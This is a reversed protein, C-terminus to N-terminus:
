CRKLGTCQYFVYTGMTTITNPIIIESLKKCQRFAYQGIGTCSTANTFDIATFNHTTSTNSTGIFYQPLGKVSPGLYIKTGDQANKGVGNFGNQSFTISTTTPINFHL